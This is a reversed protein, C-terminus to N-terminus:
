HFVATDHFRATPKRTIRAHEARTGNTAAQHIRRVRPCVRWHCSPSHAISSDTNAWRHKFFQARSALVVVPRLEEGGGCARSSRCIYSRKPPLARALATLGSRHVPAPAPAASPENAICMAQSAHPTHPMLRTLRTLRTHRTAIRDRRRCLDVTRSLGHATPSERQGFFIEGPYYDPRHPRHPVASM